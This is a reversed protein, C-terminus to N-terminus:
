RPSKFGGISIYTFDAAPNNPQRMISFHFNKIIEKKQTVTKGSFVEVNILLDGYYQITTGMGNKDIATVDISQNDNFFTVNQNDEEISGPAVNYIAASGYKAVVSKAVDMLSDIKRNHAAFEPINDGGGVSGYHRFEFDIVKEAEATPNMAIYNMYLSLQKLTYNNFIELSVARDVVTSKPLTYREFGLKSIEYMDDSFDYKIFYEDKLLLSSGGNRARYAEDAFYVSAMDNFRYNFSEDYALINETEIKNFESVNVNSPNASKEAVPPRNNGMSNNMSKVVVGGGVASAFMAVGALAAIGLMKKNSISKESKKEVPNINDPNFNEPQKFSPM